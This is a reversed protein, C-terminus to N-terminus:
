QISMATLTTIGPRAWWPACLTYTVSFVLCYLLLLSLTVRESAAPTTAPRKGSFVDLTLARCTTQFAQSLDLKVIVRPDSADDRAPPALDNYWLNLINACHSAGDKTGATQIFNDYQSTFFRAVSPRVSACALNALCRRYLSACNIPRPTGDPKLLAFLVSGAYESMHNEDFDGTLYPMILVDRLLTHTEDDSGDFLRAAMDRARCGDPDAMGVPSRTRLYRKVKELSFAKEVWELGDESDLWELVQMYAQHWALQTRKTPDRDPHTPDPHLNQLAPLHSPDPNIVLDSTMAKNAKSLDGRKHCHLAYKVRATTSRQKKGSKGSAKTRAIAKESETKALRLAQLWLEKWDGQMFRTANRTVHQPRGRRSAPLLLSPLSRTVLALLRRPLSRKPFRVTLQLILKHCDAFNDQVTGTVSIRNIRYDLLRFLDGRAHLQEFFAFSGNRTLNDVIDGPSSALGHFITLNPVHASPPNAPPPPPPVHRRAAGQSQPSSGLGTPPQSTAGSPVLMTQLDAFSVASDTDDSWVITFPRSKTPFISDSAPTRIHSSRLGQTISQVKGSWVDGNGFDHQVRRGVFSAYSPTGDPTVLELWEKYRNNTGGTFTAASLVTSAAAPSSTSATRRAKTLRTERQDRSEGGADPGPESSRARRRSGRENSTQSM